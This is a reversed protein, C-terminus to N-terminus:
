VKHVRYGERDLFEFFEKKTPVIVHSYHKLFPSKEHPDIIWVMKGQEFAEKIEKSVGTSRVNEPYFVITADTEEIFWHLDRHVTQQGVIESYDLGIEISRPTIVVFREMVEEVFQDIEERFKENKLNTMPFSVYVKKIEPHFFVKYVTDPPQRRPLIYHPMGMIDAVVRTTEVEINQWVELEGTSLNQNKWQASEMLRERISESNDIFTVFIDPSYMQIYHFNIARTFVKKWYFFTHTNIISHEHSPVDQIVREFVTALWDGRTSPPVNLINNPDFNKRRRKVEELFLDGLHYHHIEKKRKKAFEIVESIYGGKDCGSIGTCFVRM